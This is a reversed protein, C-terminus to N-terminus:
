KRLEYIVIDGVDERTAASDLYARVEPAALPGDRPLLVYRIPHQEVYRVFNTRNHMINQEFQPDSEFWTAQQRAFLITEWYKDTLVYGQPKTRLAQWAPMYRHIESRSAGDYVITVLNIVLFLTVLYFGIRKRWTIPVEDFGAAFLIALAPLAPIIVRPSNGAGLTAAYILLVVLEVGLWGLLMGVDARAFKKARLGARVVVGIAALIILAGYWPIYFLMELLQPVLFFFIEASLGRPPGGGNGSLYHLWIWPM